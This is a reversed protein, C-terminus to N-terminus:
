FKLVLNLLIKDRCSLALGYANYINLSRRSVSLKIDFCEEKLGYIQIIHNVCKQSCNAFRFNQEFALKCDLFTIPREGSIEVFFCLIVWAM